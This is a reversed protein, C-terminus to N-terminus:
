ASPPTTTATRRAAHKRNSCFKVDCIPSFAKKAPYSSPATKYPLLQDRNDGKVACDEPVEGRRDHYQTANTGAKELNVPKIGIM